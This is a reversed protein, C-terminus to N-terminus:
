DDSLMPGLFFMFDGAIGSRWTTNLIFSCADSAVHLYSGSCAKCLKAYDGRLTAYKRHHMGKPRGFRLREKLANRKEFLRIDHSLCQSRHLLGHCNACKWLGYFVLISVRKFCGPCIVFTHHPDVGNPSPALELNVTSYRAELFPVCISYELTFHTDAGEGMRALGFTMGRDNAFECTVLDKELAAKAKVINFRPYAELYLPPKM